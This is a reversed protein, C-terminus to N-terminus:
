RPPEKTAQEASGRSSAGQTLAADFTELLRKVRDATMVLGEAVLMEHVAPLENAGNGLAERYMANEESLRTITANAIDARVYETPEGDDPCDDLPWVKDQCWQRGEGPDSCCKPALWIREHDSM